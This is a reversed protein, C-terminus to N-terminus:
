TTKGSSSDEGPGEEGSKAERTGEEEPGSDGLRRMLVLYGYIVPPVVITSFLAAMLCSRAFPSDLFAFILSALYLGGILILAAIAAIRKKTMTKNGKRVHIAGEPGTPRGPIM